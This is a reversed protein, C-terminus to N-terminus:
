LLNSRVRLMQNGGKQFEYEVSVVEANYGQTRLESLLPELYVSDQLNLAKLPFVRVEPAIRLLEQLAKRHFELDFHESYLFLFHSCLALDFEGDAIPLQPLEGQVYRSGNHNAFDAIFLRTAEVRNNRLDQPSKHYSWVWNEPTAEIQGIINDLAENFKAEIDAASFAYVPDVSTVQGGKATLEANFSAPGDAVGVMKKGLDVEDLSFMKKYEDLSRGFPVVNELKMSM